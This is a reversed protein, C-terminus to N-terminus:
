GDLVYIDKLTCRSKGREGRLNLLMRAHPKGSVSSADSLRHRRDSKEVSVDSVNGLRSDLPSVLGLPDSPNSQVADRSNAFRGRSTSLYSSSEICSSTDRRGAVHPLDSAGVTESPLTLHSPGIDSRRSSRPRLSIVCTEGIGRRQCHICPATGSCKKKAERCFRCAEAARRRQSPHVKPRPM